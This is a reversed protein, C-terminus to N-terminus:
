RNRGEREQVESRLKEVRKRIKKANKGYPLIKLYKRYAAIAHKPDNKKEYIEGLLEYPVAWAPDHKVASEFRSLAADYKGKNKYFKGVSVDEVALRHQYAAELQRARERATEKQAAAASSAAAGIFLFVVGFVAMAAAARAGTAL